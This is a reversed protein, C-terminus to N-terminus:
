QPLDGANKLDNFTSHIRFHLRSELSYGKYNSRAKELLVKGQDRKGHEIFMLGLEVMAYPIIYTDEIIKSELDICDILTDEAQLPSKMHRLCTGKLLLALALNDHYFKDGQRQNQIETAEVDAIRYMGEICNWDKGLIRIGNWVLIMELGPLCLSNKQNIFRASKKVSFKEMPLSKGAIRQKWQPLERMLANVEDRERSTMRDGLMLLFACKMYAYICKSWKSELVLKSMFEVATRWEQKFCHSWTLEWYCIHHFQPWINQSKWSMTYWRIAEDINCKVFELRGKFFLFWVGDPYLQLQETVIRDALKLDGEGTGLVYAMILHNGLLVMACLIRRMSNELNYGRELEELGYSRSSSFGIFELLKLVKAPLMSIMLNFAGVGMRVGSEFHMTHKDESVDRNQLIQWCEKYSQFCSRLKMGGKVFSMLTEDETFTLVAKLQLCEAYALEAHVEEETYADYDAKKVMRGLSEAISTKRRYANCVEIASKLVNSAREMDKPQYTMIAQLFEFTGNGLAHYFSRDAKPELSDKAETFKNNFFLDVAKKAEVMAEDLPVRQDTSIKRIKMEPTSELVSIAEVADEFVVEEDAM